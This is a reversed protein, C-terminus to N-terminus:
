WKDKVIIIIIIIIIIIKLRSVREGSHNESLDQFHFQSLM